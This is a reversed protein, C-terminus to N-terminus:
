LLQNKLQVAQEYFEIAKSLNKDVGEGNQYCIALNTMARPDRLQVAQEYLEIAKSLNKDVGEGNQYCNALNNM